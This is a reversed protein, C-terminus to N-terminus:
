GIHGCEESEVSLHFILLYLFFSNIVTIYFRLDPILVKRNQDRNLLYSSPLSYFNFYTTNIFACVIELGTTEFGMEKHKVNWM